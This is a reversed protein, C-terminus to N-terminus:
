RLRQDDGFSVPTPGPLGQSSGQQLVDRPRPLRQTSELDRPRAITDRDDTLRRAPVRVVGLTDARPPRTPLPPTDFEAHDLRETSDLRELSSGPLPATMPQRARENMQARFDRLREAETLGAASRPTITLAAAPISSRGEPRLAQREGVSFQHPLLFNAFAIGGILASIVALIAVVTPGM